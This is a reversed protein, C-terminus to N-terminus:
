SQKTKIKLLKFLRKLSIFKKDNIDNCLKTDFTIGRKFYYCYIKDQKSVYVKAFKYKQIIPLIEKYRFTIPFNDGIYIFVFFKKTITNHYRDYLTNSISWRRLSREDWDGYVGGVRPSDIIINEIDKRIYKIYNNQM